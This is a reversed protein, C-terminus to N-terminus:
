AAGRRNRRSAMESLRRVARDIDQAPQWVVTPINSRRLFALQADFMMMLLRRLERDTPDSDDLLDASAIALAGVTRGNAALAAIPLSSDLRLLPTLAFALSGPPISRPDFSASERASRDTTLELLAEMLAYQARTGGRPSLVIQRQSSRIVLGVRDQNAMHNRILAWAAQGAREILLFEMDDRRLFDHRLGDIAIFVNGGREPVRRTVYPEGRRATVKWNIDRLRDGPLYERIESFEVGDGARSPSPHVGASIQSARPSLLENLRDAHPLVRVDGLDVVPGRWNLMSGSLTGSVTVRGIRQNGFHPFERQLQLEVVGRSRETKTVTFQEAVHLPVEPIPTVQLAPDHQLRVTVEAHDGEIIQPTHVAFSADLVMPGTRRLGYMTVVAYMATIAGITTNGTAVTLVVGIAGLVIYAVLRRDRIPQLAVRSAGPSGVNSSPTGAILDASHPAEGGSPGPDALDARAPDDGLPAM